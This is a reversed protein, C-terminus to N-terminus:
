SLSEEVGVRQSAAEPGGPFSLSLLIVGIVVLTLAVAAGLWRSIHAVPLVWWWVAVVRLARSTEITQAPGSRERFLERVDHTAADHVQRSASGWVHLLPAERPSWILATEAIRQENAEAYYREYFTVLAPANVFFGAATLVLLAKAWKGELLGVLAALGPLAPLLYRPGWSWGGDWFTWPSDISLYGLFVGVIALTELPKSRMARRLGVVALVIPPCYWALGRGPSVLLGVMAVPFTALSFAYPHGFFSVPNEFRFYNYIGYVALGAISGCFPLLSTAVPRRKALLYASFIPGLVIGTPKALVALAACGTGGLVQRRTGALALCLGEVTLLALLPDAFFTRAYVLAITGLAYSVAALWAGRRTSGLRLALLAVLPATAGSSLAPLVLACVAAVFHTPLHFWHALAVGVAVFPVALFSILPYWSSYVNGGRGAMGLGAPVVLSHHEVLSEAVALM